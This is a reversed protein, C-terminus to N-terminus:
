LSNYYNVLKIIDQESKPNIKEEKIFDMISERDHSFLQLISKSKEPFARAAEDGKIRYCLESSLNYYNRGDGGGGMYNVAYSNNIVKCYYRKLLEIKGESLVHFYSGTLYDNKGYRYIYVAYIYKRTGIMVKEVKFPQRIAKREGKNFLEMENSYANLRLHDNVTGEVDRFEISGSTWHEDAYPSGYIKVESEAAFIRFHGSMSEGQVYVNSVQGSVRLLHLVCIILISLHRRM